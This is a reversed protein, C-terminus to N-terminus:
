RLAYARATMHAPQLMPPGPQKTYLRRLSDTSGSTCIIAQLSCFVPAACADAPSAHSLSLNTPPRAGPGSARVDAGGEPPGPHLRALHQAAGGQGGASPVRDRGREATTSVSLRVLMVAATTAGTLPGRRAAVIMAMTLLVLEAAAANCSPLLEECWAEWGAPGMVVWRWRACPMARCHVRCGGVRPLAAELLCCGHCQGWIESAASAQKIQQCHRMGPRVESHARYIGWLFRFRGELHQKMSALQEPSPEQELSAAFSAASAEM